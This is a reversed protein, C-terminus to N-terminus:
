AIPRLLRADDLDIISTRDSAFRKQLTAMSESTTLFIQGRNVTNQARVSLAALSEADVGQQGPEDLILFGPHRDSVSSAVDLLSLLYAWRLRIGDSASNQFSIDYGEVTPKMTEDIAVEMPNASEFGFALLDSRMRNTWDALKEQDSRSPSSDGLRSRVVLGAVYEEVTERWMRVDISTTEHLSRMQREAAEDSLARQLDATSPMADPAVLDNELARVQARLDSLAASVAVRRPDIEAIAAEARSVLQRVTTRENKLFAVTDAVSLVHADDPSEVGLLSQHCTPCDNEHLTSPAIDAGLEALIRLQNYRSLEEDIRVLRRALAGMQTDLMTESENLERLQLSASNAAEQADGLRRELESTEATRSLSAGHEAEAKARARDIRNQELQAIREDLPIWVSNSLVEFVPEASKQYEKEIAALSRLARSPVSPVSLRAGNVAGAAELRGRLRSERAELRRLSEELSRRETLKVLSELALAYEVSRRLPEIIGYKTPVQPVTGGWGHKQDVYCLAFLLQLYLRSETENYNPVKPLELGLFTALFSHFGDSGAASGPRNVFYYSADGVM